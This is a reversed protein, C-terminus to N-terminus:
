ENRWFDAQLSIYGKLFNRLREDFCEFNYIGLQNSLYKTSAKIQSSRQQKVRLHM